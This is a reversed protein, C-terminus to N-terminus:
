RCRLLLLFVCTIALVVTFLGDVFEDVLRKRDLREMRITVRSVAM